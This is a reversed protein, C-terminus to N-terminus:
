GEWGANGVPWYRGEQIPWRPKTDEFVEKIGWRELLLESLESEHFAGYVEEIKM